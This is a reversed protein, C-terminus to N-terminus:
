LGPEHGHEKIHYPQPLKEQVQQKEKEDYVAKKLHKMHKKHSSSVLELASERNGIDSAHHLLEKKSDTYISVGDKGRSVSVYFQKMDTASFTDSPQHIYVHDVTKGQSAHSTIVHAHALHGYDGRLTYSTKSAKNRVVIEGDKVSIVELSMGNNLRKKDKDFGNKTIRIKDNKSLGIESQHYVDFHGSKNIPVYATQGDRDQIKIERGNAEKVTWKSARCIGKVHQNFQIVQGERYNRWDAKEAETFNLNNLRSFSNERKGILGENRLTIRISETVTDGQKHTPSIVLATKGKKVASVYDKVLLDAPNLPDIEKIAEIADLKNFAEKINGNALDQVADRYQTNKQRYIKNVEAAKIGGITNLVRLADGRVVAVHQRTDGGLILRANKQTALELLATMDKTGLLGAEDVLIVQGILDKQGEKDALLMAVTTAKEFGEEKLVRTAEATPAVTFVKKGAQEIKEVTEQLLSTKGTGAAGMLISVRNPTKLIHTAAIEQQEKLKAFRPIGDYLPNLKGLGAKALEIMRKEEQLIQATTILTRTGRKVRILNQDKKFREEIAQLSIGRQGIAHRYAARLIQRQDVVSAREFCHRLGHDLFHDPALSEIEKGSAFRVPANTDVDLIHIQRKWEAKLQAMSLGKRKASRTQAGLADRRKSDKIGLKAAARGIEDTRKSFHDIVKQPVGEIEFAHDTRRIRYGLDTLKDALLKHFMNQYYPCDIKIDRWKGAKICKEEDDWTANSTFCHSHLHPDPHHGATPRATEHIFESWVLERAERDDYVGQKRVRTKVDAQISLM